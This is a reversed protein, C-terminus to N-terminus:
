VSVTRLMPGCAADLKVTESVSGAPTVLGRFRLAPQVAAAPLIVHLPPLRPTLWLVWNPYVTVAGDVTPGIVFAADIAAESGISSTRALLEADAVVCTCAVPTSRDSVWLVVVVKTSSPPM